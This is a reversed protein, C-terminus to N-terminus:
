EKEIDLRFSLDDELPRHTRYEQGIRNWNEPTVLEGSKTVLNVNGNKLLIVKNFVGPNRIFKYSGFLGGPSYMFQTFFEVERLQEYQGPTLSVGDVTHNLKNNIVLGGSILGRILLPSRSPFKVRYYKKGNYATSYTIPLEVKNVDDKCAFIWANSSTPVCPGEYYGLSKLEINEDIVGHFEISAAIAANAFFLILAAFIKKM